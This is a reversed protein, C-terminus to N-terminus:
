PKNGRQSSSKTTVEERLLDLISSKKVGVEETPSDEIWNVRKTNKSRRKKAVQEEEMISALREEEKQERAEVRARLREMFNSTRDSM